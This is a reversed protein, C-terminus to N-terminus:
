FMVPVLVQLIIDAFFHTIVAPIFGNKLYIFGFVVGGASNLLLVRIVVLTNIETLASVTPIHGVAFLIAATFVALVKMRQLPEKKEGAVLMFVRTFLAVLFFRLLLEEGWGGYFSALLGKWWTPLEASFFTLSVGTVHFVYDILLLGLGVILGITSFKVLDKWNLFLDVKFPLNCRKALTVGGWAALAMFVSTQVVTIIALVQKSVPAEMGEPINFNIAYLYPLLLILSLTGFFWLVFADNRLINKM